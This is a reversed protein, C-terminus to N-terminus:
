ESDPGIELGPETLDKGALASDIVVEITGSGSLNVDTAADLGLYKARREKAKLVRDFAQPNGQLAKKMQARELNDLSELEMALVDEAAEKQLGELAKKIDQFAKSKDGSGPKGPTPSYMEDAIQQYTFRAQRMRLAEIRREAISESFKRKKGPKQTM